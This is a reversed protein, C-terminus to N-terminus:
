EARSYVKYGCENCVAPIKGGAEREATILVGGDGSPCPPGEESIEQVSSLANDLILIAIRNRLEEASKDFEDHDIKIVVKIKTKMRAM